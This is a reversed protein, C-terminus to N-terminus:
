LPPVAVSYCLPAVSVALLLQLIGGGGRFLPLVHYLLLAPLSLFFSFLYFFFFFFTVRIRPWASGKKKKNM